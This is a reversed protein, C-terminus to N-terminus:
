DTLQFFNNVLNKLPNFYLIMEYNVKYYEKLYVWDFKYFNVEIVM